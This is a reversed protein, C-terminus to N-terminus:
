NLQRAVPDPLSKAGACLSDVMTLYLQKKENWNNRSVYESANMALSKRLEPDRYLLAIVRALDQANDSEFFKVRSEDHYYQDVKTRSVIVPVGLSMFEMIKTSMAENGFPSSARKPVVAAHSLAMAGPIQDCPLFNHFIVKDSLALESTLEMLSLKAPGEGYVHFEAQPLEDRLIHIARVAIDVGQHTNLTGPYTIRFKGTAAAQQEVPGFLDSDPYNIITTCSEASASRAVLRQHWLDNAIIVHDSMKVSLYEALVLLKFLISKDSAGFKSAFFEPLIDHIDLIIKAGTLKPWLASFVLFDPVSHVHVVDYPQASHLRTLKSASVVMFRIVRTLYDFWGRENRQRPQVRYVNVGQLVEFAPADERRLAIVDVSDGREVLAKAYRLIRMDSEYFAYALM